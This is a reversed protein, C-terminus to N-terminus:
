FWTHQYDRTDAQQFANMIPNHLICFHNDNIQEM